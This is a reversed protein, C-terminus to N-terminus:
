HASQISHNLFLHVFDKCIGYFMQQGAPTLLYVILVVAVFLRQTVKRIEEDSRGTKLM